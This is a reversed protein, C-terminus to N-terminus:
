AAEVTIKVKKPNGLKEVVENKVYINDPSTEDNTSFKVSKQKDDRVDLVVTVKKPAAM